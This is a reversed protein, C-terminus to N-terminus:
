LVLRWKFGSFPQALYDLLIDLLPRGGIKVMPKPINGIVKKLRKGLGGCLIFVDTGGGFFYIRFPTKSIIM